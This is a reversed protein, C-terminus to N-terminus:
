SCVSAYSCQKASVELLGMGCKECQIVRDPSAAIFPFEISVFLGSRRVFHKCNCQKIKQYQLVALDEMRRGYKIAPVDPIKSYQLWRCVLNSYDPNASDKQSVVRTHVEYFHSATIRGLRQNQWDISNSHARTVKEIDAIEGSTLMKLAEILDTETTSSAAIDCM